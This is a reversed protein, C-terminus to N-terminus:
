YDGDAVQYCLLGNSRWMDVVRKRDEFVCMINEVPGFVGTDLWLQKLKDDPTYDEEPRMILQRYNVGHRMLWEETQTRVVASRGSSIIIRFGAIALRNCIEITPKIPKDAVCAQFFTPWDSEGHKILPLRHTIDALTGDLDFIVTKNM